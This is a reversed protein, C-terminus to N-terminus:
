RRLGAHHEGRCRGPGQVRTPPATYWSSPRKNDITQRVTDNSTVTLDKTGMVTKIGEALTKGAKEAIPKETIHNVLALLAGIVLAMGVLVVVMNTLTSKM